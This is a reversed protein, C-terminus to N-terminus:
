AKHFQNYHDLMHAHYKGGVHMALMGQMPIDACFHPALIYPHYHSKMVARAWATQGRSYGSELEKIVSLLFSQAGVHGPCYFIVGTNFATWMMGKDKMYERDKAHAEIDVSSNFLYGLDIDGNGHPSRMVHRPNMVVAMGFRAAINFGESFYPSVVYIDNDLYCVVDASSCLLAETRPLETDRNSVNYVPTPPRRVTVADAQVFRKLTRQSEHMHASHVVDNGALVYVVETKM